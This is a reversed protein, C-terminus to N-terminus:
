FHASLSASGDIWVQSERSPHFSLAKLYCLLTMWRARIFLNSGLGSTAQTGIMAKLFFKAAGMMM